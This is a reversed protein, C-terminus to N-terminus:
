EFLYPYELYKVFKTMSVNLYYFALYKLTKISIPQLM